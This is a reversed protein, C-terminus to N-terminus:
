GPGFVQLAVLHGEVPAQGNVRLHPHNWGSGELPQSDSSVQYTSRSQFSSLDVAYVAATRVERKGLLIQAAFLVLPQLPARLTASRQTGSLGRSFALGTTLDTKAPFAMPQFLPGM